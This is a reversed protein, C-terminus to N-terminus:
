NFLTHEMVVKNKLLEIGAMGYMNRKITKLKNVDGETIGNTIDLKITNKVAQFDKM